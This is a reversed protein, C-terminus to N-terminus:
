RGDRSGGGYVDARLRSFREGSSTELYVRGRAVKLVQVSVCGRRDSEVTVWQGVELPTRNYEVYGPPRGGAVPNTRRQAPFMKEAKEMAYGAGPLGLDRATSELRSGDLTSWTRVLLERLLRDGGRDNEGYKRVIFNVSHGSLVEVFLKPSNSTTAVLTPSRDGYSSWRITQVPKTPNGKRRGRDDADARFGGRAIWERMAAQLERLRARKGAVTPGGQKISMKLYQQEAWNANPDM